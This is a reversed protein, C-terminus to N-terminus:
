HTDSYHEKVYQKIDNSNLIADCCKEILEPFNGLFGNHIILRSKLANSLEHMEDVTSPLILIDRGNLINLAATNVEEGTAVVVAKRLHYQLVLANFPEKVLLVKRDPFRYLNHGAYLISYDSSQQINIGGMKQILSKPLRQLIQKKM